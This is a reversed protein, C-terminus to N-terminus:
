PRALGALAPLDPRERALAAWAEREDQAAGLERLMLAHLVRDSFSRAEANSAEARSVDAAGLTEFHTERL